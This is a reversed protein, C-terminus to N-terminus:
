FRGRRTERQERLLKDRRKLKLDELAQGHEKFCSGDIPKGQKRRDRLKDLIRGQEPFRDNFLVKKKKDKIIILTM